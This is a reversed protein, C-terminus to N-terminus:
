TWGFSHNKVQNRSASCPLRGPEAGVTDQRRRHSRLLADDRGSSASRLAGVKLRLVVNTVTDIAAPQGIVESGFRDRLQDGHLTISDRLMAEPLGTLKTFQDVIAANTIVPLKVRAQKAPPLGM